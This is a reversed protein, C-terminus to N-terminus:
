ESSQDESLDEPTLKAHGNVRPCRHGDPDIARGCLPCLPRGAACVRMAGESFELMQQKDLWVRITPDEGDGVNYTDIVFLGRRPDHGLALNMAKFDLKTLGPAERDTPPDALSLKDDSISNVIQQIALALQFLDEKELWVSASSSASDVNMRFMRNGPEGFAEAQLKTVSTFENKPQSM